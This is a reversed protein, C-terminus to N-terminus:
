KTSVKKSYEELLKDLFKNGDFGVELYKLLMPSYGSLYINGMEDMEPVTKNRDNFNWWVIKTKYEKKKWLKMLEDKKVASGEDFEMDSLIVIFNPFEKLDKFLEMVKALDTNTCDGTYMSEIQKSYTNGTINILEPSSSFSVVQNNCFSSCKALYHAISCAKGYFDGFCWMMSGSSDLVPICNISIKELKDFFLDADVKERNKYIDYVTSTSIKLEKKNNKVDELYKNFRESLDPRSKFINYYKLMALSPVKEFEIKDILPHSLNKSDFIEELANQKDETTYSLKYETTNECKIFARYEKESMGWENALLKAYKKDKGTLRSAWKKALENGKSIENHWYSLINETKDDDTTKNKLIALLDDFRGSGVIDKIDVDSQAMLERGLDRRGLGFRPDRLFRAFLKEKDSTGIKAEDLHKEFYSSMFLFDLLNNGTSNFALDGNETLKTNDQKQFKNM